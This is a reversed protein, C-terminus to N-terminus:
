GETRQTVALLIQRSCAVVGRDQEHAMADLRARAAAVSLEPSAALLVGVARAVLAVDQLELGVVDAADAAHDVIGLVALTSAAPRAFLEGQLVADADFQDDRRSYLNVSGIVDGAVRLPLSLASRVGLRRAEPLFRSWQSERSTSGLVVTTGTLLADVCPGEGVRYQWDDVSRAFDNSWALVNKEDQRVLVGGGDVGPVAICARAAVDQALVPLEAATFLHRNHSRGEM